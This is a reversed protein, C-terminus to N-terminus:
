TEPMYSRCWNWSRSLPSRKMMNIIPHDEKDRVNRTMQRSYPIELLSTVQIHELLFDLNQMGKRQM